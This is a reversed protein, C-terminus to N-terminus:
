PVVARNYIRVDDIRGVWFGAPALDAGAGIAVGAQSRGPRNQTDAAVEADDVYLVRRTGDWVLGVRHWQGDTIAAQSVLPQGRRGAEKLTTMLAGESADAMLWNAGGSQSLVVQGPAGGQVWAFVSFSGAGPDLVFSSSVYDGGGDLELAGDMMGGVPRWLPDGNVTGHTSGASDIATTGDTEDLKWHALLSFDRDWDESSLTEGVTMIKVNCAALSAFTQADSLTGVVDGWHYPVALTPMIYGTAEAAETANMTYTGGAPLFAVDIDTLAKMEETLDTDGAVYIRKGGLAVVFGVWNRSKPHNTKTINYAAVGTVQGADTDITQGPAISQGSGYASIVDPPAIVQTEAGRVKAIDSPSYHDGHSHTVLVLTADHPSGPVRRPDVYVVTDGEAMRVSAHGLWTVSVPPSFEDCGMDPREGVVRPQGDIDTSVSAAFDPDGADICPSGEALHCDDPGVFGPDLDINGEGPYGGQVDCCTVVADGDVIQTGDLAIGNGYLISNVVTPKGGEIGATANDVITCHAITAYNYPVFRSIKDAWMEVGAGGNGEVICNVMTPSSSEWLKVGAEDNDVIRCNVITPAASRCYIGRMAGTATLGALICSPEEGGSFTVSQISGDIVTAAVVDPDNPDESRVIVNKGGFDVTEHYLGPAAVIEDGEDADKVAHRIYDYRTGKTLNRVPGDESILAPTLLEIGEDAGLNRSYQRDVPNNWHEHVGLSHLRTRDGEPDYFTGSPPNDALAAEHMYNDVGRGTCDTARPENRIFDLAVSDIAIPDQSVFLSSCWDDGFSQYRIVEVSQNRAGYLGDILYLLTKGGLHAHGILDVLCNYSGMARNRDGFSHLPSPTWGGNNPFYVSGFHNKACLTVGFLSHARLLAMDILYKAQTVCRPLYATANGPVGPDAFRIPHAPDYSARTRGNRTANCVFHVRQFNPDPNGRIKDYLPDGIYRSADYITVAEGPVGAINILQDVVSYLMQPSPMGDDSGWTGGSDQNMNIKITLKEGAQYGVDGLDRLRNFHRFLAEWAADDPQGTLTRISQSLMSDVIAQDTNEDQWWAGTQGDWGTAQPEHVWVVRGPHIGQGVGMPTNAPESPDWAQAPNDSTINLPWWLAAVAVALFVGAVVYRSQGLLHRARRYALTSGVIGALWVVFGSAIPAVFRQCPYTARSPKPIVRILFWILSVLGVVPFVWPLWWYKRAGDMSRGTKPCVRGGSENWHRRM